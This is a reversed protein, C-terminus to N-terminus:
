REEKVIDYPTRGVQNRTNEQYLLRNPENFYDLRKHHKHYVVMCHNMVLPRIGLRGLRDELDTDEGTGPNVYREDFGNAKLLDSKSISFNCGIIGAYRQRLFRRVFPSTLRICNEMRKEGRFIGAWLLERTLRREFHPAAVRGCSMKESIRAPLDVRRGALAYGERRMRYHEEVFKRHPICDGDLFVLYDAQSRVVCKNLMLNKRFGEDEQWLHIVPFPQVAMLEKLRRVVEERSGDDAVIVEFDKFTQKGLAVFIMELWDLGNYFPIILTVKPTDAM